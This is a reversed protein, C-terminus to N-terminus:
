PFVVMPLELVMINDFCVTETGKFNTLWLELYGTEDDDFRRLEAYFGEDNIQHVFSVPYQLLFDDRRDEPSHYTVVLIQGRSETSKNIWGAILYLRDNRIPMRGTKLGPWRSEDLNLLCMVTTPGGDYLVAKTLEYRGISLKYYYVTSYGPPIIPDDVFGVRQEFGSNSILNRTTEVECSSGDWCLQIPVEGDLVFTGVPVDFGRLILGAGSEIALDRVSLWKLQDDQGVKKEIQSLLFNLDHLGEQVKPNANLSLATRYLISVQHLSKVRKELGMDPELFAKSYVVHGINFIIVSVTQPILFLIFIVFILKSSMMPIKLQHFIRNGNM